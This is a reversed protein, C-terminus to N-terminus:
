SALFNEIHQVSALDEIGKVWTPSNFLWSEKNSEGFACLWNGSGENRTM